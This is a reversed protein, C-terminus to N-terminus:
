FTVGEHDAEDLEVVDAPLSARRPSSSSREDTDFDVM